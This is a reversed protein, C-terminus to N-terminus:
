KENFMLNVVWKTHKGVEYSDEKTHKNYGLHQILEHDAWKIYDTDGKAFLEELEKQQSETPLLDLVDYRLIEWCKWKPAYLLQTQVSAIFSYNVYPFNEKSLVSAKGQILEEYFERLNPNAQNENNESIRRTIM